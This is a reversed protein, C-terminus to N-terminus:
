RARGAFARLLELQRLEEAVGGREREVVRLDLRTELVLGRGVREGAEVVVAGEVLAQACLQGARAAGRVVDRQEHEVDVVELAQVVHV